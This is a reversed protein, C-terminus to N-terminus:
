NKSTLFAATRLVSFITQVAEAPESKEAFVTPILEKIDNFYDQMEQHIDEDFCNDLFHAVQVKDKGISHYLKENTQIHYNLSSLIRDQTDFNSQLIKSFQQYTTSTLSLTTGFTQGSHKRVEFALSNKGPVQKAVDYLLRSANELAEYLPFKYYSISLGFSLSPTTNWGDFQRQLQGDLSQLLHFISRDGNVVPAFFLLDDGGAYVPVGGYKAIQEIAELSFDKLLKSFPEFDEEKLTRVIKGLGDGDAYVVAVYKHHTKFAKSYKEELEKILREDDGSDASEREKRRSTSVHRGIRQNKIAQYKDDNSFQRAAVEILTDFSPRGKVTETDPNDFADDALWSGPSRDLLNALYPKAEQPFKKQWELTSIIPNLVLMPNTAEPKGSDFSPLEKEIIYIQFYAYVYDQVVEIPDETYKTLEKALENLVDRVVQRTDDLDDEHPTKFIATDSFLGTGKKMRPDAVEAAPKFFDDNAVYPLAFIRTDDKRLEGIIKKMIWSFLYSAAWLERTHRASTITQTIPAISIAIYRNM